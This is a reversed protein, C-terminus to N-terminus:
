EPDLEYTKGEPLLRVRTGGEGPFALHALLTEGRYLRLEPGELPTQDGELYGKTEADELARLYDEVKSSSVAQGDGDQWSGEKRRLVRTTGKAVVEIRDVDYAHLHLLHRDRLGEPDPLLQAVREAPIRGWFGLGEQYAAVEAEGTAAAAAGRAIRVVAAPKAAKTGAGGNEKAEAEKAEDSDDEEAETYLRIEAWGEAEPPSGAVLPSAETQDLKALWDEVRTTDARGGDALRWVEQADKHLSWHHGGDAVEVRTARWRPVEFLRRRKLDDVPKNVTEPLTSSVLAVTDGVAVYRRDYGVPAKAGLRVTVDVGEGTLHVSSAGEGLGYEALDGAAELRREARLATVAYLLDDVATARAPAEVPAKLWWHGAADRELRVRGGKRTIEIARVRDREVQVLEGKKEEAEEKARQQPRDVAFYYGAIAALALSALLLPLLRRM